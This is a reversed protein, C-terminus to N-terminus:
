PGYKLGQLDYIVIDGSDYIRSVGPLNEFKELDALPIPRNSSPGGPFFSGSAPPSTSLRWDVLVYQVDQARANETVSSNYSSSTYLYAIGWLPNQDGYGVLVPSSGSDAAIRNGPGLASLTWKATAIEEPEVSREFSAVQYPGPLREWYPPWGNALGDFLLLLTGLTAVAIATVRGLRSLVVNVLPILALAVIFSVPIYIFTAARGSIEQGDSIGVRIALSAFWGLSGVAMALIWPHHRKHRWVQWWGIPLLATVLLIVAGELIQNGFPEASTTSQAAHTSAGNELAVLGQLIGKATPKFYTLTDPAAFIIWCAIAGVAILALAGITAATRTSRALLSTLSILILTAALVYSTVHHTVVTAMVSLAALVFWSVREKTSKRTAARGAALVSLALFALALTEYVYMSNFSTLDPTSYYILIAIGAVRYSRGIVGFILYLLCIFVLHALGAIILGAEFIPLGTVSILATTVEELGPYHPSVPLGYNVTSLKGTALVNVTSRWHLLEDAFTFGAPSYCIKLLYEALTLIVILAVTENATLLRRGLLRIAVPAVVLAQGLWYARDAWPSAAYGLRGATYAASATFVGVAAVLAVASIPLASDPAAGPVAYGSPSRGRSTARSRTASPKGVVTM